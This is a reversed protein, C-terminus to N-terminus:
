SRKYKSPHASSPTGTRSPTSIAQLCGRSTMRSARWIFLQHSGVPLGYWMVKRVQSCSPIPAHSRIRHDVRRAVPSFMRRRRRSNPYETSSTCFYRFRAQGCATYWQCFPLASGLRSLKKASLKISSVVTLSSM